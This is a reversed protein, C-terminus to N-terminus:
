RGVGDRLIEGPGVTKAQRIADRKAQERTEGRGTFMGVFGSWSTNYDRSYASWRWEFQENLSRFVAFKISKTQESM